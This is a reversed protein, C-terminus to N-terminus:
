LATLSYSLTFLEVASTWFGASSDGIRGTAPLSMTHAPPTLVFISLLPCCIILSLYLPAGQHLTVSWPSGLVRDLVTTDKM